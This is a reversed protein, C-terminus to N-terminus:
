ESLRKEIPKNQDDAIKKLFVIIALAIIFGLWEVNPVNPIFQPFLMFSIVGAFMGGIVWAIDSTKREELEEKGHDVYKKQSLLHRLENKEMEVDALEAVKETYMNEYNKATKNIHENQQIAFALTTAYSALEALPKATVIQKIDLLHYLDPVEEHKFGFYRKSKVLPVPAIIYWDEENEDENIITYKEFSKYIVANRMKEGRLINMLTRKPKQDLWSFDSSELPSSSIIRTRKSLNTTIDGEDTVKFNYLNLNNENQMQEIFNPALKIGEEKRLWDLNDKSFSENRSLNGEMTSFGMFHLKYRGLVEGEGEFSIKIYVVRTILFAFFAGGIILAIWFIFGAIGATQNPDFGFIQLAINEIM